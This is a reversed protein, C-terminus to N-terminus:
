YPDGSGLHKKMTVKYLSKTLISYIGKQNQNQNQDRPFKVYLQTIIIKHHTPGIALDRLVM